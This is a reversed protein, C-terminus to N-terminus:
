WVQVLSFSLSLSSDPQDHGERFPPRFECCKMKNCVLVSTGLVQYRDVGSTIKISLFLVVVLFSCAEDITPHSVGRTHGM